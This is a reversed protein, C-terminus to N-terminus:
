LTAQNLISDAVDFISESKQIANGFDAYAQNFGFLLYYLVIFLYSEGKSRSMM